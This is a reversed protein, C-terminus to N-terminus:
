LCFALRWFKMMENNLNLFFVNLGAFFQVLVDAECADRQSYM